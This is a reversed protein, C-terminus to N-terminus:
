SLKTILLDCDNNEIDQINSWIVELIHKKDLSGNERRFDNINIQRTPMSHFEEENEGTYAGTIDNTAAENEKEYYQKEEAEPEDNSDNVPYEDIKNCLVILDVEPLGDGQIYEKTYGTELVLYDLRDQLLDESESLFSDVKDNLSNYHEAERILDEYEVVTTEHGNEFFEPVVNTIFAMRTDIDKIYKSLNKYSEAWQKEFKPLEAQKEELVKLGKIAEMVQARSMTPNIGALEIQDDTLSKMKMLTSFTFQQYEEKILGTVGDGFRAFTNISDSVTGKAIDHQAMAWDHVTKYDDLQYLKKQSVIYLQGAIREALGEAKEQSDKIILNANAYTEIDLASFVSMNETTQAENAKKNAM